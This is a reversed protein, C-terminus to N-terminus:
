PQTQKGTRSLSQISMLTSALALQLCLTQRVLLAIIQLIVITSEKKAVLYMLFPLHTIPCLPIILLLSAIQGDHKSM